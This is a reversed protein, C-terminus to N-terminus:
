VSLDQLDWIATLSKEGIRLLRSLTAAQATRDGDDITRTVDLAVQALHGMGIQDAIARLSRASKRLADSKGDRYLQECHSLRVALEEMARCIVDEAAAEGLQLYLSTLKEQDVRAGDKPKMVLVNEM